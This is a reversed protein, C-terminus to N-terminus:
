QRRNMLVGIKTYSNTKNLCSILLLDCHLLRQYRRDVTGDVFLCGLIRDSVVSSFFRPPQRAQGRRHMAAYAISQSPGFFHRVGPANTCREKHLSTDDIGVIQVTRMDDLARAASVYHEILQGDLKLM